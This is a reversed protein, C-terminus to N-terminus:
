TKTFDPEPAAQKGSERPTGSSVVLFVREIGKLSTSASEANTSNSPSSIAAIITSGTIAL